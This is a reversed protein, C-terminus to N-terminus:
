GGNKKAAGVFEGLILETRRLLEDYTIIEVDRVNSRFLEFSKLQTKALNKLHGVILVVKPNFSAFEGGKALTYFEKQLNDKQDLAQVLGGTVEKGISFVDPKRYPNETDILKKLPTKIEIIFVNKTLKNQFLFDAEKGGKNHISKGGVYVKGGLLVVPMSLINSLVWQNETFFTQCKEELADTDTKQEVLRRLAEKTKQLKIFNIKEEAQYVIKDEKIRAPIVEILNKLDDDSLKEPAIKKDKLFVSLEGKKYDNANRKIEVPFLESLANNSIRRLEESQVEKLPKITQFIRELDGNNFTVVTRTLTSALKSSIIIKSIGHHPELRYVIPSLNRTFGLGFNVAKYVGSIATPSIDHFEISRIYKYKPSGNRNFPFQVELQKKKYVVRSPVDFGEKVDRYFFVDKSKLSHKLYEGTKNAM